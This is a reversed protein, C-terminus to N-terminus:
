SRALYLLYGITERPISYLDRMEVFRAHEHGIVKIRNRELALKFRPVHFYQTAIIASKLGHARMFAAANKATAFTDIGANDQIIATAPVGNKMLYRAMSAAEDFGESGTGGSVFIRPARHAHFISLAVDLRAQLRPGPTGDPAITNGPVIILDGEIIKDHLGALVIVGSALLMAFLCSLAFITLKRM